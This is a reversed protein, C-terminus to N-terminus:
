LPQYAMFGFWGDLCWNFQLYSNYKENQTRKKKNTKKEGQKEMQSFFDSTQDLTLSYETKRIKKKKLLEYLKKNLHRVLGYSYPMHNFESMFIQLDLKSVM